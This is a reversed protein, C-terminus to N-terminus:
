EKDQNLVIVKEVTPCGLTMAEDVTEKLPVWKNGRYTGNATVILRAGCDAVRSQISAASFGGFIVSHIIGLRACALVTFALEPVNPLYIAVRDGKKVGLNKM